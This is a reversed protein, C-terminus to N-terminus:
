GSFAARKRYRSWLCLDAAVMLANLAYLWVVPDPKYLLKHVIGACYGIIILVLFTASKGTVNKTKWTKYVSFPWSAGFCVLM